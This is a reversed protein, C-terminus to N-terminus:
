FEEVSNNSFEKLVYDLEDNDKVEDLVIEGNVLKETVILVEVPKSNTILYIYIVNHLNLRNVVIYEKGNNLKVKEGAQLM